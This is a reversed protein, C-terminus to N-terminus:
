LTVSLTHTKNISYWSAYVHRFYTYAFIIKELIHYVDTVFDNSLCSVINKKLKFLVFLSIPLTQAKNISFSSM